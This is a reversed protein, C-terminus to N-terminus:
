AYRLFKEIYKFYQDDARPINFAWLNYIKEFPVFTKEAYFTPYLLVPISDQEFYKSLVSLSAILVQRPLEDTDLVIAHICSTLNSLNLGADTINVMFVAKLVGDKKLSFIYRERKFGAKKYENNLNDFDLMDPELDLATLLLGGSNYEYFGRLELLDDVTTKTILYGPMNWQEFNKPFDFYAFPDISCGKPDNLFKTFGGLFRTPFRNEPRFYSIIYNLHASHISYFDRTYRSIQELVVLGARYSKISAHHHFLWTKEYVRLMSIHGQLIGRDQYVFHRAIQPNKNYLREYTEIFREKNLYIHSYKQPYVFGTEFLFNWLDNMDIKNCIFTRKNTAHYLMSSLRAQDQIDIDLFAIGCKVVTNNESNEYTNKYVVQAMCRMKFGSGFEIELEPIILGPLLQATEYFEETSLGSCSIDEVSLNLLKGTLPHIFNINPTPVLKQRISRYKRPKFRPMNDSLPELVINKENHGGSHMTIKCEGSYLVRSSDKLIVNVAKETNIWLFSQDPTLYIKICFSVASFDMLDGEFIIGNQILLAKINKCPYRKVRRLDLEYGNEPLTFIIKTEDYNKLEPRAIIMKKGNSIIISQFEYNKLKQILDLGNRWLCELKEENCPLPKAYISIPTLYKTNKFNLLIEEDKFNVLNLLNMLRSKNIVKTKEPPINSRLNELLQDILVRETEGM